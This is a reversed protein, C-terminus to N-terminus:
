IYLKIQMEKLIIIIRPHIKIFSYMWNNSFFNWFPALRQLNERKSKNSRTCFCVTSRYHIKELNSTVIVLITNNMNANDNTDNHENNNYLWYDKLYGFTKFLTRYPIPYLDGFVFYFFDFNIKYFKIIGFFKGNQSEERNKLYFIKLKNIVDKSYFLQIRFLPSKRSSTCFKPTKEHYLLKM